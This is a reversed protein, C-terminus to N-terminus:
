GPFSRVGQADFVVKQDNGVIMMGSRPMPSTTACATLTLAFALLIPVRSSM